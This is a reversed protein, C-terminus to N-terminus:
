WTNMDCGFGHIFCLTKLEANPNWIKYHVNISDDITVSESKAENLTQPQRSCGVMLLAALVLTTLLKKM